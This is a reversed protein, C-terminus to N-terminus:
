ECFMNSIISRMLQRPNEKLQRAGVRVFFLLKVINVVSDRTFQKIQVLAALEELKSHKM